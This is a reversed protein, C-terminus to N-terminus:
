VKPSLQRPGRRHLGLIQAAAEFLSSVPHEELLTTAEDYRVWRRSRYAMEDWEAAESSVEMLFVSVTLLVGWKEYEYTGVRAGVLRGGLGAEEKAEQLATQEPTCGPDIM